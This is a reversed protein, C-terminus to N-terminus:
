CRKISDMRFAECHLEAARAKARDILLQDLGQGAHMESVGFCEAFAELTAKGDTTFVVHHAADVTPQVRFCIYGVAEAGIFAVLLNQRASLWGDHDINLSARDGVRDVLDLVSNWHVHWNDVLEVRPVLAATVDSVSEIKSEYSM